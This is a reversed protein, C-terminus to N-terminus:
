AAESLSASSVESSVPASSVDSAAEQESEIAEGSSEASTLHNMTFQDITGEDILRQLVKNIADLLEDNGKQVAIAYSDDLLSEELIVLSEDMTKLEEAPLSDMVIANLRGSILDNVADTYKNYREVTVDPYAESDSLELDGTTGLQVGVSGTLEEPSTIGSDSRTMIVQKSVAYEISFDVQEEREPTVSLGSAAFDAKGTSVSAIVSDFPMEEIILERNLEKAIENAIDVDIGVVETGSMYEYPPFTAECAMVIQGDAGGVAPESPVDAASPAAAPAESAPASDSTCAVLSFSLLLALALIFSIKKM